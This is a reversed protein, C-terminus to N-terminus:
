EKLRDVAQKLLLMGSIFGTFLSLLGIFIAWKSDLPLMKVFILILTIVFSIMSILALITLIRIKRGEHSKSIDKFKGEDIGHKLRNLLNLRYMMGVVASFVTILLLPFICFFLTLVKDIM